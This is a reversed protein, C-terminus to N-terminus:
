GTRGPPRRAANVAALCVDGTDAHVRIDTPRLDPLPARRIEYEVSFDGRSGNSFRARETYSGLPGWGNQENLVWRLEGLYDDPTYCLTGISDCWADDWERGVIRIEYDRGALVPFGLGTEPFARNVHETEGGSADFRFEESAQPADLWISIDGGFWWDSDDHIRFSKIM